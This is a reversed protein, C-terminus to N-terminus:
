EHNTQRIMMDHWDTWADYVGDVFGKPLSAIVAGVGYAVTRFPSSLIKGGVAVYKGIGGGSIKELNEATLEGKKAEGLLEMILHVYQEFEEDNLVIGNKSLEM